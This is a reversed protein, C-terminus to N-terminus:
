IPFTIIYSELYHAALLAREAAASQMSIWIAIGTASAAMGWAAPWFSALSQLLSPTRQAAMVAAETHIQAMVGRRWDANLRGSPATTNHATRLMKELQAFEKENM